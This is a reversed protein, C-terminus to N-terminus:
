KLVYYKYYHEAMLWPTPTSVGHTGWLLEGGLYYPASLYNQDSDVYTTYLKRFSELQALSLCTSPDSGNRCTLLEPRFSSHFLKTSALSEHTCTRLSVQM